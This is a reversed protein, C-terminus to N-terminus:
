RVLAATVGTDSVDTIARADVALSAGFIWGHAFFTKRDNRRLSVGSPTRVPVDQAAIGHFMEPVNVVREVSVIATNKAALEEMTAAGVKQVKGVFVFPADGAINALQKKSTAM